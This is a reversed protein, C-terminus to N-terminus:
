LAALDRRRRASIELTIVAVSMVVNSTATLAILPDPRLLGHVLWLGGSMLSAVWTALAVDSHRSDRFTRASALVQPARFLAGILVLVAVIALPAQHGVPDPV